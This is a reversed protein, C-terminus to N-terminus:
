FTGVHEPKVVMM